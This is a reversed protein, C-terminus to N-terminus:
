YIWCDLTLNRVHGLTFAQGQGPLVDGGVTKGM